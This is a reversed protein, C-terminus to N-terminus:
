ISSRMRRRLSVRWTSTSTMTNYGHKENKSDYNNMYEQELEALMSCDITEQLISFVF